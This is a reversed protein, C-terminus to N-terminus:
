RCVPAYGLEPLFDHWEVRTLNRNAVRCAQADWAAPDLNWVVGTGDSFVAVVRKGDPLFTARGGAGTGPLPAGILKGTALDYLRIRGDSSATVLKSGDPSYSVSLVLGNQGALSRGALRGTATDWFDVSGALDGTALTRGDPSFRLALIALGHELKRELRRTGLDWLAIEGTLGAAALRSGDPSFDLDQLSGRISFGGVQKGTSIRYLRVHGDIGATALFRDDMSFAVAASGGRGGRTLRLMVTGTRDDWVLTQADGTAALLRGAHDFALSQIASTSGALGREISGDRTRWLTVRGPGPSTAFLSGDPSTAVARAADQVVANPGENAAPTPAFRFPRGLRRLGRVDWAIVSGDSSGSYLTAGDRSFMPGVASASHGLFTERLTGSPVDWVSVSGDDSTTALVKGDGDFSIGSVGGQARRTMARVRGSGLDDLVVSGDDRGFAAVNGDPVVAGEGARRFMRVRRFTRADLVFSRTDGSTVLLDRGGNVFGILRGHPIAPSRRIALADSSRREVLVEAPDRFRGSVAEGTVFTAGNPAFLVDATAVRSPVVVHAFRLHSQVHFLAVTAHLGDSDGVALTQGDPSFALARVPRVIAGFYKLQGDVALRPRMERLTATDFLDVKSADSRVALIRGNPSLADDLVRSGTPHLVALAAPSRLLAALLNSRTAASDDVRVGQRALLLSRDLSSEVLAQAGLRQAIAATAQARATGREVLAAAGAIAAAALLLIAVGLLARLRRNVRRQREEDRRYATRSADLFAREVRNLGAEPGSADVWDTVAALRVGRFLENDDRGAADWEAAAEAVRRRLRRGDADDELWGALTPWQDLLADHVLEVTGDDVVLLRRDVLVDLARAVLPDDVEIEARTARHRILSGDDGTAVLRLLLGRAASREDPDLSALAAEAHRAVAGRIGGIREYGARTLTSGDRDHWLDVLVASLLSLAGSEHLADHVLADVLATEVSLGGLEAPGVIARHLETATLPGLLVQNSAVLDALEGYAALRDLYDARLAVIVVARRDPDWAAEVLTAIFASREREEVSPMLLEEFQDVAVVLRAGNSSPELARELEAAARPGPRLLIQHQDPLAPLLGARLLSSKGSGSAGVLALFPSGALRGVLEAVIRERGFFRGADATEFPALGKFPCVEPDFRPAPSAAPGPLLLEPAQVLIARELQQLEVGPELGLEERLLSRTHRYVGLGEVQRGSRYLALMLQARFRERYPHESCLADLEPVLERQRGLALEADIRHEVAALRLEELREVDVRAFPEFELDALARGQWLAEARRLQSAAFDADGAALVERGGALLREFEEFDLEGPEVRLLYGPARAAIRPTDDNLAKRLRSVHNRLAHDASNVSQDAFLEAILRERAVVRNASLLLLALLARQKPGGIPVPAGDVEVVLPGLIRFELRPNAM